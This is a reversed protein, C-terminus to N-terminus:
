PHMVKPDQVGKAPIGDEDPFMDEEPKAEIKDFVYHMLNDLSRGSTYAQRQFSFM